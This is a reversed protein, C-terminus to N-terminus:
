GIGFSRVLSGVMLYWGDALVFLIIKFPLSIFIPPLMLMGMSMLTSAVVMDIILFPVFVMFGIMFATTLESLLFAPVIVYTPVDAPSQPPDIEAFHVFLGLDKERTQSLMFDRVPAAALAYAESTSLEHALYPQLAQENVTNFTPAMVFFTLFLAMGLLVQNPPMQQTGLAQRLLGLVIIIRTFATTMVLVSPALTLVTLLVLLQLSTSVQEPSEARGIEVTVSPIIMGGDQAHAAGAGASGVLVVLLLLGGLRRATM